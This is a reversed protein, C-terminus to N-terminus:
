AGQQCPRATRPSHGSRPRSPRPRVEGSRGPDSRCDVDAAALRRGDSGLGRDGSQPLELSGTARCRRSEAQIPENAQWRRLDEAMEVCDPYRNDPEKALAKLCITELDKPVVANQKSPREPETRLHHHIQVHPPGSFPTHGTLLEYLVIGLSYQDSAVTLQNNQGQAQEPSMNAPTGMLAVDRTLKEDSKEIRALGFDMLHPEDKEDLMVNAPKVDRHLIGQSHAYGLAQALMRAIKAARRCDMPQEDIASQLTQGAIFASAQYYEGTQEDKGADFVPVIHPHQLRASASRRGPLSRDAAPGTECRRHAAAAQSCRRTATAPRLRSLRGWLRRQRRTTSNRVAGASQFGAPRPVIEKPWDM